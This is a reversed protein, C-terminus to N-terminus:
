HSRYPFMCRSCGGCVHPSRMMNTGSDDLSISATQSSNIAPAVGLVLTRSGVLHTENATMSLSAATSARLHVHHSKVVVSSGNAAFNNVTVNKSTALVKGGGIYLTTGHGSDTANNISVAGHLNVKHSKSHTGIETTSVTTRDLKANILITGYTIDGDENEASEGGTLVVNGGRNVGDGGSILVDGGHSQNESSQGVIALAMKKYVGSKKGSGKKTISPATIVAKTANSSGVVLRTSNLEIPHNSAVVTTNEDHHIQFTSAISIDGKAADFTIGAAELKADESNLLNVTADPDVKLVPKGGASLTISGTKSVLNLDGVENIGGSLNAATTMVTGDDFVVARAAHLYDTKV